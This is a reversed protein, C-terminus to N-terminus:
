QDQKVMKKLLRDDPDFEVSIVPFACEIEVETTAQNLEVVQDVVQGPQSGTARLIGSLRYPRTTQQQSITVALHSDTQSHELKLLPYGARFFWQDFFWSLDEGTTENFAQEVIDFGDQGPDFQSFAARWAEFFKEDGVRDRLMTLIVPTKCFVIGRYAKTEYIAPNAIAVDKNFASTLLYADRCFGIGSRFSEDGHRSEILLMNTFTSIGEGLENSLPAAYINWQHSLEDAVVLLSFVDPDNLNGDSLDTESLDGFFADSIVIMGPTSVGTEKREPTVHAFRVDKWPLPGMMEEFLNAAEVAVDVRQRVLEEEGAYGFVTLRLGSDSTASQSIYQGVAFGFPLLRKRRHRNHYVFTSSESDSEQEVLEGGTIATYGPPVTLSINATADNIPDIPYYVIHTSYSSPERIQGMVSVEAVLQQDISQFYDDSSTVVTIEVSEGQAFSDAFTVTLKDSGNPGPAVLWTSGEPGDVSDVKVVTTYLEISNVDPQLFDVTLKDEARLSKDAPSIVVQLEHHTVEFSRAEETALAKQRKARIEEPTSLDIDAAAVAVVAPPQYTLSDRMTNLAATVEPKEWEAKPASVQFIVLADGEVFAWEISRTGISEYELRNAIRDAFEIDEEWSVRRYQDGFARKIGVERTMLGDPVANKPFVMVVARTRQTDDPSFLLIKIAGESKDDLAWSEDPLQLSVGLEENAYNTGGNDQLATLSEPVFVCTALTLMFAVLHSNLGLAM